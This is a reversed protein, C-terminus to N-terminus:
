NLILLIWMRQERSKVWCKRSSSKILLITQPPTPHQHPPGTALLVKQQELPGLNSDIGAVVHHNGTTQLETRSFGIGEESKFLCSAIVSPIHVCM